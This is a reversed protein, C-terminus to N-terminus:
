QGHRELYRTAELAAMCGSGAATVAQRYVHDQVDGAAFVGDVSTRASDTRIFGKDDLDLQGRFPATNPKHGIALFLGTVAMTSLAGTKVNRLRLGTVANRSVDLVEEVVSNLVIEVKPNQRARDAMIPSARFEDRRHILTV